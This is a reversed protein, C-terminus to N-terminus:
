VRERCSARGIKINNLNTLTATYTGQVYGVSSYNMNISISANKDSPSFCFAYSPNETLNTFTYTENSASSMESYWFHITTSITSNTFNLTDANRFTFNIYPITLTSNCLGFSMNNVYFTQNNEAFKCLSETANEGCTLVNWEYQGLIFNSVIFNSLNSTGSITKTISNNFINGSKWVWLTANTLNYGTAIYSSTFNIISVSIINIDQLIISLNAEEEIEEFGFPYYLAPSFRLYSCKAISYEM